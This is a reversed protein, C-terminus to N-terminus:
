SHGLPVTPGNSKSASGDSEAELPSRSRKYQPTVAGWNVGVSGEALMDGVGTSDGVGAAEAVARAEGVTSIDGVGGGGTSEPLTVIHSVPILRILKLITSGSGSKVPFVNVTSIASVSVLQAVFGVFGDRSVQVIGGRTVKGALTTARKSPATTFSKVKSPIPHPSSAVGIGVVVGHGARTM